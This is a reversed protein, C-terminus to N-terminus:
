PKPEAHTLIAHLQRRLARRGEASNSWLALGADVRQLFRHRLRKLATQLDGPSRELRLSLHTFAEADDPQQVFGALAEFSAGHGARQAENAVDQQAQRLLSHGFSRILCPLALAAHLTAPAADQLARALSALPETRLGPDQAELWVSAARELEILQSSSNAQASELCHRLTHQLLALRQQRLSSPERSPRRLPPVPM